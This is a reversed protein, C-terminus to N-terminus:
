KEDSAMRQLVELDEESLLECAFQYGEPDAGSSAATMSRLANVVFPYDEKPTNQLFEAYLKNSYFKMAKLALDHRMEEDRLQNYADMFNEAKIINIKPDNM